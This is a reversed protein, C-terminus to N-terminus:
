RLGVREFTASWNWREAQLRTRLTVRELDLKAEAPVPFALELIVSRGAEVTVPLADTAASGVSTLEADLLEFTAPVLAFLTPGPNQVTLRFHLESLGDRVVLGSWKAALHAELDDDAGRLDVYQTEPAFRLGSSAACAACSLAAVLAGIERWTERRLARAGLDTSVLRAASATTRWRGTM